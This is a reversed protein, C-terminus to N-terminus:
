VVGRQKRELYQQILDKGKEVDGSEFVQQWFEARDQKFRTAAQFGLVIYLLMDRGVSPDADVRILDQVLKTHSFGKKRPKTALILTKHAQSPRCQVICHMGLIKRM